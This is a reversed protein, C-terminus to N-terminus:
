FTQVQPNVENCTQELKESMFFMYAGIQEYKIPNFDKESYAEPEGFFHYKQVCNAFVLNGECVLV